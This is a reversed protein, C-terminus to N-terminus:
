STHLTKRHSSTSKGTTSMWKNVEATNFAASLPTRLSADLCCRHELEALTCETCLIAGLEITRFVREFLDVLYLQLISDQIARRSKEAEVEM